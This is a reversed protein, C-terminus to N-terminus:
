ALAPERTKTIPKGCDGCFKMMGLSVAGCSRCERAVVGGCFYCHCTKNIKNNQKPGPTSQGCKPCIINRQLANSPDANSVIGPINPAPYKNEEVWKEMLEHFKDLNRPIRQAKEFEGIANHHLDVYKGVQKQTWGVWGRMERFRLRFDDIAKKKPSIM